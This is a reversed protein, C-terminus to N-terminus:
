TVNCIITLCRAGQLGGEAAQLVQRRGSDQLAVMCVIHVGPSSLAGRDDQIADTECPIELPHLEVGM